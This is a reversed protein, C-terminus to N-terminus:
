RVHLVLTEGTRRHRREDVEKRARKGCRRTEVGADGVDGEGSGALIQMGEEVKEPMTTDPDGDEHM